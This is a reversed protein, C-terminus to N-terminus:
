FTASFLYLYINPYNQLISILMGITINYLGSSKGAKLLSSSINITLLTKTIVHDPIVIMM